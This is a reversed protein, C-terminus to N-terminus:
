KKYKTRIHNWLPILYKREAESAAIEDPDDEYETTYLGTSGLLHHQWEHIITNLLEGINPINKYYILIENDENDYEGYTCECDEATLTVLVIYDMKGNLGMIKKCWTISRNVISQIEHRSLDKLETTLTM